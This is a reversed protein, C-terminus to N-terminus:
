PVAERRRGFLVAFLQQLLAPRQALLDFLDDHSVVLAAGPTAVRASRGLPVGALTEIVGIADGENAVITEAGDAELAVEGSLLVILRPADGSTFV